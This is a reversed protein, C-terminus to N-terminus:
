SPVGLTDLIAETAIMIRRLESEDVSDVRYDAQVRLDYADEITSKDQALLVDGCVKQVLDHRWRRYPTGNDDCYADYNKGADQLASTVAQYLAYYNRNAATDFRNGDAMRVADEYCIKAKHKMM